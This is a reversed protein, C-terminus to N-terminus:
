ETTANAGVGNGLPIATTRKVEALALSTHIRAVGAIPTLRHVVIRELDRRNQALVKLLYDYEGTIHHCELVEPIARVAERFREVQESGHKQLSIQVFCVMDYGLQEHDLIAAYRQVLGDAELRRVRAHIAPASLGLRRAIEVNTLRGEAQLFSLISRDTQDLDAPHSNTM